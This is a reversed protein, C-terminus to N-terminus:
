SGPPAEGYREWGERDSFRFLYHSEDRPLAPRGAVLPRMPTGDPWVGLTVQAPDGHSLAVRRGDASGEFSWAALADFLRFVAWVDLADDRALIGESQPVTHLARLRCDGRADSRVEVFDKAAEPLPLREFLDIAIRPDVVDDEEFVMVLASVHGPLAALDADSVRLPYWPALLYLFAGRAGWGEEVLARRALFPVAGGGYSHGVIGIRELDLEAAHARAAAAIGSWLADYREAHREARVMYPSFVVAAGRSVAHEIWGRYARPDDVDFAHAFLITPAPGPAGEPLFVAVREEPWDPNALFRARVAHPGPAGFGEAIAAPECSDGPGEPGGCAACLAAVM